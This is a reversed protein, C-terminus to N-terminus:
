VEIFPLPLISKDVLIGAHTWLANFPTTLQPVVSDLTVNKILKAVPDKGLFLVCDLAKLKHFHKQISEKGQLSLQSTGQELESLM